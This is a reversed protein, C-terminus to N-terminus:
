ASARLPPSCREGFLDLFRRVVDPDFQSGSCRAIEAAAQERTLAARYPRAQTMADFADAVALIRCELPISEGRLGLPYGSGDWREHHKLIWDAVRALEPSSQALHQGTECHRQVEQMEHPDLPAPKTLIRDSISVTGIDHFRAFLRLDAISGDRLGLCRGLEAVMAEVRWAHEETGLDREAMAKVATRVFTSGRAQRHHLKQRYMNDDAAKFLETMTPSPGLGVAFGVSLGLPFPSVQAENHRDVAQQLRVCAASALERSEGPFLIAFEDGGIRAVVADQRFCGRIVEAADRLLADGAAHGSTDNVIKLGDVDCLIVAVPSRGRGLRQMEEEFFARNYLGTLADHLSLYRLQHDLQKRTTVDEISAVVCGPEGGDAALPAANLNVVRRVGDGGSVAYELGAVPQGAAMVLPLPLRGCALRSGDAESWDFRADDYAAGVLGPAPVGFIAHAASNAFIVRGSPLVVLIGELLTDLMKVMREVGLPFPEESAVLTLGPQQQTPKMEGRM